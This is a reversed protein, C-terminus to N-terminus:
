AVQGGITVLLRVRIIGKKADTSGRSFLCDLVVLNILSQKRHRLSDSLLAIPAVTYGTIGLPTKAYINKQASLYM